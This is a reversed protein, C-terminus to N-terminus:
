RTIICRKTGTDVVGYLSLLNPHNLKALTRIERFFLEGEAPNKFKKVAMEQGDIMVRYVSGFNGEGIKNASNISFNNTAQAMSEFCIQYMGDLYPELKASPIHMDDTLVSSLSTQCIENERIRLGEALQSAVNHQEIRRLMNYLDRITPRNRGTTSWTKLIEDTPSVTTKNDGSLLQIHKEDFLRNAKNNADEPKDPHTIEAALAQWGRNSDLEQIVIRRTRAELHRLEIDMQDEQRYGDGSSRGSVMTTLGLAGSLKRIKEELVEISTEEMSRYTAHTAPSSTRRPSASSVRLNPLPQESISPVSTPTVKNKPDASTTEDGSSTVVNNNIGLTSTSFGDDFFSGRGEFVDSELLQAVSRTSNTSKGKDGLHRSIFRKVFSM